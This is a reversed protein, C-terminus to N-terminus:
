KKFLDKQAEDWSRTKLEGKAILKLRRETENIQWEPIHINEEGLDKFKSKLENWEQIPIFVGTTRGENDSIYQLSM